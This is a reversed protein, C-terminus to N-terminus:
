VEEYLKLIRVPELNMAHRAPYISALTGIVVSLAISLLLMEWPLYLPWGAILELGLVIAIAIFAGLFAGSLALLVSEFFFQFFLDRKTAGVVRKVAIEILREYMSLAMIAIIGLAGVSYAIAAVIISLISFLREMQANTGSVAEYGMVTFDKKGHRSLLLERIQRIVERNASASRTLIFIGDLWRSHTLLRQAVSVPVAVTADYDEMGVSGRPEFVGVVRFPIENIMLTKGVPCAEGFFDEATRSGIVAVKHMETIDKSRLGRGCAPDLDMLPAFAQDVGMVEGSRSLRGSELNLTSSRLPSAAEIGEIKEVLARLDRRRLTQVAGIRTSKHGFVILEGPSVIVIRTGFKGLESLTQKMMAGSIGSMLVLSLVGLAIGLISIFTRKRNQRLYRLLEDLYLRKM